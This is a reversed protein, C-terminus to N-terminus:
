FSHFSIYKFIINLNIHSLNSKLQQFLLLLLYGGSEDCGFLLIHHMVQENDIFPQTAVMHYDDDQPLEFMM